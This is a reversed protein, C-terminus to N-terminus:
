RYDPLSAYFLLGFRVFYKEKTKRTGTVLFLQYDSSIPPSPVVLSIRRPLSRMQCACSNVKLCATDLNFFVAVQRIELCVQGFHIGFLDRSTYNRLLVFMEFTTPTKFTAIQHTAFSSVLSNWKLSTTSAAFYKLASSGALCSM